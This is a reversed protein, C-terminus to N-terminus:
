ARGLEGSDFQPVKKTVRFVWVVTLEGVNLTMPLPRFGRVTRNYAGAGAFTKFHYM